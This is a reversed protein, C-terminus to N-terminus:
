AVSLGQTALTEPPPRRPFCGGCVFLDNIRSHYPPMVSLCGWAFRSVALESTKRACRLLRRLVGWAFRSVALESTKRACHLLRRLVGWAFRSVALESTKRACHLLRRLVGWAFRSVALESTKRACHLPRRLSTHCRYPLNLGSSHHM